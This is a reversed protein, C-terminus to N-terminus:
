GRGKAMTLPIHDKRVARRTGAGLRRVRLYPGLSGALAARLLRPRRVYHADVRPLSYVDSGRDVVGLTTSCAAEYSAAVVRVAALTPRAGYPYAFSTVDAGVLEELATLADVIEHTLFGPDDSRLPAHTMGHCGIEWGQGALHALEDARALEIRPGGPLASPWENTRGVHGAVCFVTARLGREALLPAAIRAVSACGDDFTIAVHRGTLDGDRMGRALESLTLVQAGSEVVSDLHAAFRTPDVFLPGDAREVAHYTLIVADM